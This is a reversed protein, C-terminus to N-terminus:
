LTFLEDVLSTLSPGKAKKATKTAGDAGKFSRKPLLTELKQTLTDALQQDGASLAAAIKSEVIKRSNRVVGNIQVKSIDLVNNGSQKNAHNIEEAILSPNKESYHKLVYS